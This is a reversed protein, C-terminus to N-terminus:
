KGKRLYERCVNWAKEPRDGHVIVVPLVGVAVGNVERWRHVLWTTGGADTVQTMECQLKPAVFKPNSVVALLLLLTLKLAMALWM